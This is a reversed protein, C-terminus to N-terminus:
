RYAIFQLIFCIALIKQERAMILRYISSHATLPKYWFTINTYKRVFNHGVSPLVDDINAASLPWQKDM